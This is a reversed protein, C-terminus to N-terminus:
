REQFYFLKTMGKDSFLFICPIRKMNKSLYSFWIWAKTSKILPCNIIQWDDDGCFYKLFIYEFKWSCIVFCVTVVYCSENALWWFTVLLWQRAPQRAPQSALWELGHQLGLGRQLGFGRQLGLGRPLGLGCTQGLFGHGRPGSSRTPCFLRVVRTAMFSRSADRAGKHVSNRRPDNSLPGPNIRFM